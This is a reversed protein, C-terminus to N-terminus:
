HLFQSFAEQFLPPYSLLDIDSVRSSLFFISVKEMPTGDQFAIYGFLEQSNYKRSIKLSM